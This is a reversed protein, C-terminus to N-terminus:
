AAAVGPAASVSAIESVGSSAVLPLPGAPKEGNRGNLWQESASSRLVRQVPRGMCRGVRGKQSRRRRGRLLGGGCRSGRRGAWLHGCLCTPSAPNSGPRWAWRGLVLPSKSRSMHVTALRRYLAKQRPDPHFGSKTFYVHIYISGNQQVSQLRAVPVLSCHPGERCGGGVGLGGTGGKQPSLSPLPASPNLALCSNSM